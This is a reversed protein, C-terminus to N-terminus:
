MKSVLHFSYHVVSVVSTINSIFNGHVHTFLGNERDKHLDENM